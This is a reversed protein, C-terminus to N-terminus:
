SQRRRGEINICQNILIVTGDQSPHPFMVLLSAGCLLAAFPRKIKQLSVRGAICLYGVSFPSYVLALHTPTLITFLAYHAYPLSCFFVRSRLAPLFSSRKCGKATNGLCHGTSWFCYHCHPFIKRDSWATHPFIKETVEVCHDRCSSLQGFQLLWPWPSRFTLPKRKRVADHSHKEWFALAFGPVAAFFVLVPLYGIVVGLSWFSFAKILSPSNERKIILYLM